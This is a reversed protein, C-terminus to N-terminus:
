PPTPTPAAPSPTISPSPHTPPTSTPTPSPASREFRGSNGGRDRPEDASRGDSPTLEPTTPTPSAPAPGLSPASPTAGDFFTTGGDRDAIARDLVVEAVTLVVAGLAFAALGALVARWWRRAPRQVDIKGHQANGARTRVTVREAPRRLAEAFLSMLVPTAAAGIITGPEWLAHVVVAAAASSVSGVILSTVSFGHESSSDWGKGVQADARRPAARPCAEPLV